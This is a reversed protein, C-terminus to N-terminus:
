NHESKLQACKRVILADAEENTYYSNTTGLETINTQLYILYSSVLHDTLAQKINVTVTIISLFVM